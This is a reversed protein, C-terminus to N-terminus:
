GLWVKLVCRAVPPEEDSDSDDKVASATGLESKVLLSKMIHKDVHQLAKPDMIRSSGGSLMSSKITYTRKKVTKSYVNRLENIAIPHLEATSQNSEDVEVDITTSLTHDEFSEEEEEEDEEELEEGSPAKQTLKEDAFIQLHPYKTSIHQKRLGSYAGEVVDRRHLLHLVTAFIEKATVPQQLIVDYGGTSLVNNKIDEDVNVPMLIIVPICQERRTEENRKRRNLTELLRTTTHDVDTM